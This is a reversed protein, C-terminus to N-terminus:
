RFKRLLSLLEMRTCNLEVLTWFKVWSMQIDNSSFLIKTEEQFFSYAEYYVESYNVIERRTQREDSLFPLRDEELFNGNDDFDNVATLISIPHQNQGCQSFKESASTCNGIFKPFNTVQRFSIYNGGSIQQNFAAQDCMVSFFLSVVFQAKRNELFDLYNYGPTLQFYQIKFVDKDYHKNGVTPVQGKFNSLDDIFYKRFYQNYNM